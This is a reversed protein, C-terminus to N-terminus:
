PLFPNYKILISHTFILRTLMEKGYCYFFFLFQVFVFVGRDIM